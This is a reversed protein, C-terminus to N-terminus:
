KLSKRWGNNIAEQETCFWREGFEPKIVCADYFEGGPVHYIKEGEYSINGKIDCGPPHFTCGNPCGASQTPEQIGMTQTPIMGMQSNAKTPIPSEYNELSALAKVIPIDLLNVSLEVLSLAIWISKHEDILLWSKENNIGYVTFVENKASSGIISYSNGPGTRLNCLDVVVTAYAIPLPTSTNKPTNTKSLKTPPIKTSTSKPAITNLKAVKTVETSSGCAITILITVIVLLLLIRTKRNM